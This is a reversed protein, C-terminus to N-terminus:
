NEVFVALMADIADLRKQLEQVRDRLRNKQGALKAKQELLEAKQTRSVVTIELTDADIQAVVTNPDIQVELPQPSAAFAVGAKATMVTYSLTIGVLVIVIAAVIKTALIIIKRM